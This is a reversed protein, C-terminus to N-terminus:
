IDEGFKEGAFDALSQVAEAADAGRASIRVRDGMFVKLTMLGLISKASATKGDKSIEIESQFKQARDVVVMAARVHLGKQNVLVIERSAETGQIPEM